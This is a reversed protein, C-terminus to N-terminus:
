SARNQVTRVYVIALTLQRFSNFSVSGYFAPHPDPGGISYL